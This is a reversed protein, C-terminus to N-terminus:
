NLCPDVFKMLSQFELKEEGGAAKVLSESWLLGHVPELRSRMPLDINQKLFPSYSDTHRSDNEMIYIIYLM